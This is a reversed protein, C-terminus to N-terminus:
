ERESVNEELYIGKEQQDMGKRLSRNEEQKM